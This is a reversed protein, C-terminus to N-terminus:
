GDNAIREMRDFRSKEDEYINLYRNVGTSRDTKPLVEAALLSTLHSHMSDFDLSEWEDPMWSEWLRETERKLENAKKTRQCKECYRTRRIDIKKKSWECVVPCDFSDLSIKALAKRYRM